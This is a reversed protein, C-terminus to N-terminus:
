THGTRITGVFNLELHNKPLPFVLGIVSSGDNFSIVRDMGAQQKVSGAFFVNKDNGRFIRDWM